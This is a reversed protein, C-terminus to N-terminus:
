DPGTEAGLIEEPTMPVDTQTLSSEFFGDAKDEPSIAVTGQVRRLGESHQKAEIEKRYKADPITLVYEFEETKVEYGKAKMDVLRQRDSVADGKLMRIVRMGKEDVTGEARRIDEADVQRAWPMGSALTVMQRRPARESAM